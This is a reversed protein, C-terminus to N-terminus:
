LEIWRGRKVRNEPIKIKSSKIASIVKIDEGVRDFIIILIKRKGDEIIERVAVFNGEKLDYYVKDPNNVTEIVDEEKIGRKMLQERAHETFIIGM